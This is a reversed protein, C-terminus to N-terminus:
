VLLQFQYRKCHDVDPPPFASFDDLESNSVFNWLSQIKSSVWIEKYRLTRYVETAFVLDTQEAMEM